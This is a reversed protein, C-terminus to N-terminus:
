KFDFSVYKGKDAGFGNSNNADSKYGMVQMKRSLYFLSSDFSVSPVKELGSLQDFPLGEFLDDVLFTVSEFGAPTTGLPSEYAAVDDKGGKKKTDKAAKKGKDAEQPENSEKM